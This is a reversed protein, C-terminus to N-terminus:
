TNFVTRVTWMRLPKGYNCYFLFKLRRARVFLDFLLVLVDCHTANIYRDRDYVISYKILAMLCAIYSKIVIIKIAYSYEAAFIQTNYLWGAGKV